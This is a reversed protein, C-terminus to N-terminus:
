TEKRRSSRRPRHKLCDAPDLGHNKLLRLPSEPQCTRASLYIAEIVALNLLNERGSCRYTKAGRAVAEAFARGQRVFVDLPDLNNEAQEVVNGDPDRLVCHSGNVSLSGGLGHISLEESVPGSCRTTVVTAMCGTAFRFVAAATDDTDYVPQPRDATAKPRGGIAALGYVDEPLGLFWVMLDIPHYGLELLAGGGASEKDGRWGLEPGWNFLYHARALFVQGLRERLQWAHRYCYAFRRQTGVVLKLGAEGMAAVMAAGEGLNRALPADKWVHIGRKACAPILEAAAKPPVDLCVAQPRAEALLSRSDDYVPVGSDEALRHVVAPDKDAIGVVEVLEIRGTAKLIQCGFPGLGIVAIPLPKGLM